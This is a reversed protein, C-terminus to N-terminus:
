RTLSKKLVEEMTEVPIIELGKTIESSLEEVDATNEKPILVTQIGANKAALLKEKLGGIPLVRGRLTIEGTMALDARVKKGTVASLMATAMTIGASPGDKPVAGEPIHVHIDHKEFFDEAIAYKKSVSRIYSIGARASEKMVDGLQGTLMIEGKGPMVNVEIQLTDGGVSTWALGRVIGVEPAANAMQYSYKEKGLFKHLNRDTVTIKEKETTLLEKAAKRCINGIERELQRVGAEKTYNHAIKWIAKKSFSLQEATIGHKELQKPILHEIAIHLKENETYSTIEIIEMRDLLPRPITQLTNATTIFTVESLDLPVELYHDRFKSNQESDLVELLASFTDGKYDTSVKDIEDLLLVPNKVGATRIGNAIRGPMAGVYTKRHGRIEAEDRVGGLSIRVFPKKLSRALSKAISTKGTGPPGVLCLIPSEGKQTLTRVALFELIREKVQELGYHDAELVEKAYNIDTNDEARKNWPMELITEIYTRIVGNEAQSGITNKFRGIEKHLKEKVEEPADLKSCAEEFEDADSFTTDEGLEERIVKLQERLLYEKQHKDVKNKVKRQLEEKIEMIQMENVLKLSLKEYRSWFDLEELLEQQDKYKLPINAAVENVLRKLDTIDLFEAVSEKSIKGNKAAYETIIEKLGRMMAEANLDDPITIEQEELVEVEARLYPDTEEIKKLVARNKGEVLVRVVKKSLKILQKVSAVTGIEYVDDQGPNETEISKQAVLFIEQEEVMAQQIAAISRERSVDFHVIMEPMITLGRLAVMPLSRTENDM